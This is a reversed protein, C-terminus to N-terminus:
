VEVDHGVAAEELLGEAQEDVVGELVRTMGLQDPLRARDADAVVPGTHRGLEAVADELAEHATVRARRAHAETERKDARQGAGHVGLDLEQGGVAAAGLEAEPERGSPSIKFFMSLHSPSPPIGIMSAM